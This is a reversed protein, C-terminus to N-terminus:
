KKKGACKPLIITHLVTPWVGVTEDSSFCNRYDNNENQNNHYSNEKNEKWTLSAFIANLWRYVAERLGLIGIIQLIVTLVDLINIWLSWESLIGGAFWDIFLKKIVILVNKSSEVVFDVLSSEFTFYQADVAGIAEGHVHRAEESVTTTCFYDIM